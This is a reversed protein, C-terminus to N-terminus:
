AAQQTRRRAASLASAAALGSMTLRLREADVLGKTELHALGHDIQLASVDLARALGTLTIPTEAQVFLHDLLGFLIYERTNM